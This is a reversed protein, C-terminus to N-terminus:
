SPSGTPAFRPRRGEALATIGERGEPGSVQVGIQEREAALQDSFSTRGSQELLRRIGGFAGTPGAAIAAILKGAREDLEDDPVVQSVLGAALADAATLRTGTLLVAAARAPGIKRPLTWTMGGDPTLGVGPYGALWKAGEGAVVVDAFATLSLGVGYAAGRVVAVIPADGGALIALTEHLREAMGDLTAPPDDAGGFHAIDGGLCFSKGAGTLVVVRVDDRADIAKAAELFATAMETDFLNGQDPRNLTITAVGGSVDMLITETAPTSTSMVATEGVATPSAM